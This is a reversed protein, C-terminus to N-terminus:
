LGFFKIAMGCLFITGGALAHTYRELKKVPFLNMGLNAILVIGLMTAITVGGFVSTVLIVGATSHKAAPYMVIPILPECPGLVFVTFLIWPTLKASEEESHVHVHEESHIHEHFHVSGDLHPHLHKHQRNRAMRRLGWAFYLLGFLILAWAAIEGRVSEIGEFKSVAVGFAVGIMGLIVSSGIHGLGCLVTIWSTKFPSWKRAKSMVIFPLYHDPGLLTHFFGLSASTAILIWLEQNM